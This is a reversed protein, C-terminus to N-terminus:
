QKLTSVAEDVSLEGRALRDLVDMRNPTGPSGGALVPAAAEGCPPQPKTEAPNEPTVLHLDGSLSHFSIEPGDSDGFAVRTWGGRVQHRSAPLGARLRGSLSHMDVRCAAVSPM